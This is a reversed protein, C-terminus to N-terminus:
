EVKTYKVSKMCDKESATLVCDYAPRIDRSYAAKRLERCKKLALESTVCFRNSSFNNSSIATTYIVNNKIM